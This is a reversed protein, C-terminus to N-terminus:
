ACAGPPPNPDTPGRWWAKVAQWAAKLWGIMMWLFNIASAIDIAPKLSELYKLGLRVWDPAMPLTDFIMAASFAGPLPVGAGLWALGRGALWAIATLGVISVLANKKNSM